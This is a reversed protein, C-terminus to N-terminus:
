STSHSCSKDVPPPDMYAPVFLRDHSYKERGMISDKKIEESKRKNKGAAREYKKNWKREKRGGRKREKREVRKRERARLPLIAQALTSLSKYAMPTLSHSLISINSPTLTFIVLLSFSTTVGM